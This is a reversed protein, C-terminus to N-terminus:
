ILHFNMYYFFCLAAIATNFLFLFPSNHILAGCLMLRRIIKEDNNIDRSFINLDSSFSSSVCEWADDDHQQQQLDGRCSERECTRM